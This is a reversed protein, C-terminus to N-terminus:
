SPHTQTAHTRAHGALLKNSTFGRGCVRCIKDRPPRVGEHVRRRHKALDANRGFYKECADCKYKILKLHVLDYHNRMNIKKSFEKDCGPCPVRVAERPRHKVSNALHCKYRYADPYEINCEVCYAKPEPPGHHVRNHLWLGIYRSFKKQCIKCERISHKKRIHAVLSDKLKYSLGCYDCIHKEHAGRYHKYFERRSSFLANCKLCEVAKSGHQARAHSSTDDESYCKYDCLKCYFMYYHSFLHSSLTQVDAFRSRCIDCVYIGVSEDHYQTNHKMLAKGDDFRRICSSCRFDSNTYCEEKSLEELVEQLMKISFSIKKFMEKCDGILRFKPVRNLLARRKAWKNRDVSKEKPTEEEELLEEEGNSETESADERDEIRDGNESDMQRRTSEESLYIGNPNTDSFVVTTLTSLSVTNQQTQLMESAQRIRSRFREVSRLSANCEWCVLAADLTVDGRDPSEDYLLRRYIEEHQRLPFMRRGVSLCIHCQPHDEETKIEDKIILESEREMNVNVQFLPDSTEPADNCIEEELKIKYELVQNNHFDSKSSTATPENFDESLKTNETDQVFDLEETNTPTSRSKNSKCKKESDFNFKTPVANVKMRIYKVSGMIKYEMYNAMDEELNFHDECLYLRSKISLSKPDRNALRLWVNRMKIDDPVQIFLKETTRISTNPCSTVICWRYRNYNM